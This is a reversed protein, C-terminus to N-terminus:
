CKEAKEGSESSGGDTGFDSTFDVKGVITVTAEDGDIEVKEIKYEAKAYLKKYVDESIEAFRKAMKEPMDKTIESPLGGNDAADKINEYRDSDEDLCDLMAETDFDKFAECYEEVVKEVEKKDKSGCGALMALAMVAVMLLALIKKTTKM